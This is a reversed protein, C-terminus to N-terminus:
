PAVIVLPLYLAVTTDAFAQLATCRSDTARRSLYNFKSGKLLGDRLVMM